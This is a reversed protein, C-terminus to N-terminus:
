NRRRHTRIPLSVLPRRAQPLPHWRCSPSGLSSAPVLQTYSCPPRCPVYVYGCMAPSIVEQQLEASRKGAEWRALPPQVLLRDAGLLVLAVIFSWIPSDFVLVQGIVLALVAYGVYRLRRLWRSTQRRRAADRRTTAYTATIERYGRDFLDALTEGATHVESLSALYKMDAEDAGLAAEQWGIEVDLFERENQLLQREDSDADAEQGALADRQRRLDELTQKRAAVQQRATEQQESAHRAGEQAKRRSDERVAKSLANAKEEVVVQDARLGEVFQQAAVVAEVSRSAGQWGELSRDLVDHLVLDDPRLQQLGAVLSAATAVIAAGDALLREDGAKEKLGALHEGMGEDFRDILRVYDADPEYSTM